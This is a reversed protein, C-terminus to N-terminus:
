CMNLIGFVNLISVLLQRINFTNHFSFVVNSMRWTPTLM